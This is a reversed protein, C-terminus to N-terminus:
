RIFEFLEGWYFNSSPHKSSGYSILLQEMHIDVNDRRLQFESEVAERERTMTEKLLLPKTFVSGIRDLAGELGNELVEAVYVTHESM